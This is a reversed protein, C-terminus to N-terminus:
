SKGLYIVKGDGNLWHLAIPANDFFDILEAADVDASPTPISVPTMTLTVHNGDDHKSFMVSCVAGM